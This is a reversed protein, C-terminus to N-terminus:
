TVVSARTQNKRRQQTGETTQGRGGQLCASATKQQAPGTGLGARGPGATCGAGAMWQPPAGSWASGGPHRKRGQPGWCGARWRQLGQPGLQGARSCCGKGPLSVLWGTPNRRCGLESPWCGMCRLYPGELIRQDPARYIRGRLNRGSSM